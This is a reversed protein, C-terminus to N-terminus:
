EEEYIMKRTMGGDLVFNQGTIFGSKESLLFWCLEAVDEPVGIRGAPHQHHHKNAWTISKRNRTKQWPQVDIWGPSISNVRVNPQFSMALAHTLSTVGGKSAAYAESNPESMIARTSSINVVSGKNLMLSKSLHQSTLFYSTLNVALVHNWEDLTLKEIPKFQSIGANNVLYKLSPRQQIISQLTKILLEQDSVDCLVANSMHKEGYEQQFEDLAESDNDLIFVFVKEDILKLSIAKGIGQAGGTVIATFM